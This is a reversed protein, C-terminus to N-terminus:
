PMAYIRDAYASWGDATKYADVTGSPVNIQTDNTNDFFGTGGTPPTTPLVTISSLSSCNMFAQNGLITVSSPITISEIACNYFAGSRIENLNNGVFNVTTLSTCGSFGRADIIKVSAPIDISILSGCDHFTMCGIKNIGEPLTISNLARCTDFVYGGISTISSHLKISHMHSCNFFCYSPIKTISLPIDISELSQCFQFAGEGLTSVTEPIIFSTINTCKYFAESGISTVGSPISISQLRTCFYFARKGISTVNGDFVIKWLGNASYENSIINADFVDTAYPEVIEGDTSTYWIENKPVPLGTAYVDIKAKKSFVSRKITVPKATYIFDDTSGDSTVFTMTFGYYLTVPLLILYYDEGRVFTSGTKPTLFVTSKGSNVNVNPLGDVFDLSIDGAINEYRNGHFIIERIDDRSLSFKIGGCVNYFKLATSNNHALTIFLDDDFTGPVGYQTAPLTTTVASGSCTASPNYPYLGWISESASETSGIIDTTSFVATTANVTNQSVYHTSTTGYFVNIEDAPTWYITGVGDGDVELVSKSPNDGEQAATIDPAQIKTEGEEVVIIDKVRPEEQVQEELVSQCAAFILLAASIIFTKNMKM